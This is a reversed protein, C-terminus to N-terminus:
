GSAGRGRAGRAHAMEPRRIKRAPGDEGGPEPPHAPRLRERPRHGARRHQADLDVRRPDLPTEARPVQVLRGLREVVRQPPYARRRRRASWERHPQEAIRGVHHRLERPATLAEIEDGVLGGSM